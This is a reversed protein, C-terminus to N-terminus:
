DQRASAGTARTRQAGGQAGDKPVLLILDGSHPGGWVVCYDQVDAIREYSNEGLPKRTLQFSTMYNPVLFYISQMDPSLKPERAVNWVVGDISPSAAIRAPQFNQRRMAIYVDSREIFPAIENPGPPKEEKVAIFAIAGGGPAVWLDSCSFGVRLPVRKGDKATYSIVGNQLTPSPHDQALCHPALLLAGLLVRTRM